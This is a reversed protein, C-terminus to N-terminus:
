PLVKQSHELLSNIIGLILGGAGTMFTSILLWNKKIGKKIARDTEHEMLKDSIKKIDRDHKERDAEIAHRTSKDFHRVNAIDEKLQEYTLKQFTKTEIISRENQQVIQMTEKIQASITKDNEELAHIKTELIETNM